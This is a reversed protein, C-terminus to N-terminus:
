SADAVLRELHAQQEVGITDLHRDRELNVAAIIEDAKTEGIHPLALLAARLHIHGLQRKPDELEVEDFLEGLTLSGATLEDLASRRAEAAQAEAAAGEEPNPPPLTTM